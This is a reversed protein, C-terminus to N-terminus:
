HTPSFPFSWFSIMFHDIMAWRERVGGQRM